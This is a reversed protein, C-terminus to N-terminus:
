SNIANQISLMYEPPSKDGNLVFTEKNFGIEGLETLSGVIGKDNLCQSCVKIEELSVMNKEAKVAPCFYCRNALEYRFLPDLKKL